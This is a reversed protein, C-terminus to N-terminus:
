LHKYRLDPNDKVWQLVESKIFLVRGGKKKKHMPLGRKVWSALTVLSIRLYVAIEKRTTVAEDTQRNECRCQSLASTLEERIVERIFGKLDAESTIILTEM